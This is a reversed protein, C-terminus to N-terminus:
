RSWPELAGWSMLVFSFATFVLTTFTFRLKRGATWSDLRRGGRWVAPAMTITLLTLLAAVFACASAILLMPGPWDYMLVAVDRVEIAWAGFAALALLWLVAITTQVLSARAQSSTQRSERKDRTFAGFLTATSALVVLVALAALVSRGHLLDLRDYATAGSPALWRIPRGDKFQFTLTRWGGVEHFQGPAGEPAWAITDRDGTVLRGDDTVRVRVERTLMDVFKELGGYARREDMYNGAYLAAQRTLDPSGPPIPPAAAAYFQAVILGPLARALAAGTDTNTAVFIGLNLAPITVLSSHFWLSDGTEGEGHYGGPLSVRDMVGDDSGNLGAGVDYVATGDIQGGGLILTMFRAMDGATSSLGIAPAAQSAYEFAQPEFVGGTWRYGTSVSSALNAPMPAPLDAREPYPERFTTRGLGAPRIIESEMLDQFRRNNVYALAEGALAAGYSSAVPVTGPERVRRPREERLYDALPRVQNSDREYLQGLARDEFGDTHTLLDQVLIQRRYGQDRVQLNEPLYLNIPTGLRIHGAQAEKMVAMWTFAKSISSLRFLTRDPDVPAAPALNSLGYGKKLVVQGNQVVAIAVGAIHRTQMAERVVGDVFAELTASPIPAVGPPAAPSPVAAVPRAATRPMPQVILPRGVAPHAIPEAAPEPQAQPIPQDTPTTAQDPAPTSAAAAESNTLMKALGQGAMGIALALALALSFAAKAIRSM